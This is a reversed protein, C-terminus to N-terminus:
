RRAPVWYYDAGKVLQIARLWPPPPGSNAYYAGSVRERKMRDYTISRTDLERILHRERHPGFLPYDWADEGAIVFMRDRPGLHRKLEPLIQAVDGNVLTMQQDRHLAFITKQGEPVLVPKGPNQLLPGVLTLVALALTVGAIAPRRATLALLPAGLAMAPMFLRGLWPNFEITACFAVVYLVVGLALARRDITSRRGLLAVLLVLPLVIWGIFGFAVTDEQVGTDVAFPEGEALPELVPKLTHQIAPDLWSLGVGPAEVWSWGARVANPLRESKLRTQEQVGGLANGRNQLNLVYNYSGLAVVSVLALAISAAVFRPGPRHKVLAALVVVAIALGAIFITGKTGIALGLAAAGVAM